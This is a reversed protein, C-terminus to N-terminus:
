CIGSTLVNHEAFIMSYYLPVYEVADTLDGEQEWYVHELIHKNILQIYLVVTKLWLLKQFNMLVYSENAIAVKLKVLM